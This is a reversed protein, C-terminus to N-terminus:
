NPRKILAEAEDELRSVYEGLEALFEDLSSGFAEAYKKAAESTLRVEEKELRRVHRDSLGTIEAQTLGKEERLLRLALSMKEAAYREIVVDALHMPDVAQILQSAGVRLDLADWLQYSGSSHIQFTQLEEDSLESLFRVQATPFCRISM